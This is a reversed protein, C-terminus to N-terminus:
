RVEDNIVSDWYNQMIREIIEHKSYQTFEYLNESPVCYALLEQKTYADLFDYRRTNFVGRMYEEKTESMTTNVAYLMLFDMLPLM